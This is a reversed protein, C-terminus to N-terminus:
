VPRPRLQLGHACLDHRPPSCLCTFTPLPSPPLSPSPLSPPLPFMPILTLLMYLAGVCVDMTQKRLAAAHAAAPQGMERVDAARFSRRQRGPAPTLTVAGPAGAATQLPPTGCASMVDLRGVKVCLWGAAHTVCGMDSSGRGPTLAVPWQKCAGDCVRGGAGWTGDCGPAGVGTQTV